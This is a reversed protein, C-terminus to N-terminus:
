INEMKKIFETNMNIKAETLNRGRSYKYLKYLFYDQFERWTINFNNCVYSYLINYLSSEIFCNFKNNEGLDLYVIDIDFEKDNLKFTIINTKHDCNGKYYKGLIQIKM